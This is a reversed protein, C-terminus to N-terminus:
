VFNKDIKIVKQSTHFDTRLPLKYHYKSKVLIYSANKPIIILKKLIQTVGSEVFFYGWTTPIMKIRSSDIPLDLQRPFKYEIFNQDLHIIVDDEPEIWSIASTCNYAEFRNLGVNKLILEIEALIGNKHLGIVKLDVLFEIKPFIERKLFFYFALVGLGSSISGVLTLNDNLIGLFLFVLTFLCYGFAFLFVVIITQGIFFLFSASLDLWGEKNM